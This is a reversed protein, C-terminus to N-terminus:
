RITMKPPVKEVVGQSQEQAGPGPYCGMVNIDDCRLPLQFFQKVLINTDRFGQYKLCAVITKM